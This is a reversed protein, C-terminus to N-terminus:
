KFWGVATYRIGQTVQKVEHIMKGNTFLVLRGTKPKIELDTILTSGGEYDDNLYLIFGYTDGPDVHPKMFSNEPWQVIEYNVPKEFDHLKFKNNLKKLIANTISLDENKLFAVPLVFTDRYPHKKYNNSKFIKILSSCNEDSLFNDYRIIKLEEM